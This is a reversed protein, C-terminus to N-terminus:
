RVEEEPFMQRYIGTYARAIGAVINQWNIDARISSGYSASADSLLYDVLLDPHKGFEHMEQDTLCPSQEGTLHFALGRGVIAIEVEGISDLKDEQTLETLERSKLKRMGDLIATEFPKRDISYTTEKLGKLDGICQNDKM